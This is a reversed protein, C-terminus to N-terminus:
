KDLKVDRRVHLPATGVVIDDVVSEIPEDVHVRSKSRMRVAEGQSDLQLVEAM